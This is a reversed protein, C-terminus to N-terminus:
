VLLAAVTLAAAAYPLDSRDLIAGTLARMAGLAAAACAAAYVGCALGLLAESTSPQRGVALILWAIVGTVFMSFLDLQAQRRLTNQTSRTHRLTSRAHRLFREIDETVPHEGGFVPRATRALDDLTTVAERLDDFTSNDDRYLALAYLKRMRLMTKHSKSLVSRAIPINKRLLAKAEGFRQMNVLLAAYNNTNVLYDLHLEGDLKLRRSIVDQFMPLAEEFRGQNSYTGALNGKVVILMNESDNFLRRIRFDTERVSAADAFHEAAHLATGLTTMAARQFWLLMDEGMTGIRFWSVDPRGWYTKWCAWGLACFVVGHYRQKCTSCTEWHQIETRSITALCSVHVFGATGRCSCGRVLGEQTESHISEWCISCTQGKTDEACEKVAAAVADKYRQDVLDADVLWLPAPAPEAM